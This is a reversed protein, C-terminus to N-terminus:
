FTGDGRGFLITLTDSCYVKNIGGQKPEGLDKIVAAPDSVARTLIERIAKQPSRDKLAAQCDGIFQESTFTASM